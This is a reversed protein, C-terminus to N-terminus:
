KMKLYDCVAGTAMRITDAAHPNHCQTIVALSIATTCDNRKASEIAKQMLCARGGALICGPYPYLDPCDASSGADANAISWDINTKWEPTTASAIPSMKSAVWSTYNSVRTYIGYKKPQACGEGWSVVGALKFETGVPAVLPGGSDGQCSDVGGGELGACLMNITVAGAYSDDENCKTRDVVPVDVYRLTVSTQGGQATLGWGSVRARRGAPIVSAENNPGLLPIPTGLTVPTTLRLLAVDNDFTVSNFREHSFVDSVKYLQGGTRLDISGAYVEVDAPKTGGHVCHAATIVWSPAILSGGCFQGGTASLRHKDTRSAM